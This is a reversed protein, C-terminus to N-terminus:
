TVPNMKPVYKKQTMVTYYLLVSIFRKLRLKSMVIAIAIVWKIGIGFSLRSPNRSANQSRQASMGELALYAVVTIGTTDQSSM